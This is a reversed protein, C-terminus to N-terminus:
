EAIEAVLRGMLDLPYRLVRFPDLKSDSKGTGFSKNFFALSETEIYDFPFISYGTHPSGIRVLRSYAAITFHDSFLIITKPRGIEERLELGSQIPVTKDFLALIMLTNKADIYSAVNKPDTRVNKKLFAFMQNEDFNMREEVAKRYKVIRSENSSRMLGAIDTGGMVMVNYKLRPDIGATMAVNIAGRSVGLAGFRSKGYTKEFFDIAIRDRVVNTRLLEEIFEFKAPDKFDDVRHVVASDFGKKAFYRAFYDAVINSGGLVPFVFILSDSSQPRQYYDIKIAGAKSTIEIQKLTYSEEKSLIKEAHAGFSSGKSYYEDLHAPRQSPGLYSRDRPIVVCAPLLLALLIGAIFRELNPAIRLRRPSFLFQM